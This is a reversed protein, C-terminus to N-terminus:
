CLSVMRKRCCQLTLLCNLSEGYSHIPLSLIFVASHLYLSVSLCNFCCKIFPQIIIAHCCLYNTLLLLDCLSPFWSDPILMPRLLQPAFILIAMSSLKFSYLIQHVVLDHLVFAGLVFVFSTMLAVFFSVAPDHVGVVTKFIHINCNWVDEFFM